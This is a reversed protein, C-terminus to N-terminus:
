GVAPIELRVAAQRKAKEGRRDYRSTTSADAHSAAQQVSLMFFHPCRRLIKLNWVCRGQDSDGGKEQFSLAEVCYGYDKKEEMRESDTWMGIEDVWPPSGGM